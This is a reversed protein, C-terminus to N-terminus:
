DRHSEGVPIYTIPPTHKKFFKRTDADLKRFVQPTLALGNSNLTVATNVTQGFVDFRKDTRTGIPGCVVPGFHATIITRSKINRGALWADGTEQLARLALVGRNVNDAPYVILGADGIFKVVKGGSEEVLDGVFEFCQSLMEFTKKPSLKRSAQTFGTLDFLAVLLDMEQPSSVEDIITM